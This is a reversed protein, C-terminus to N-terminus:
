ILRIPANHALNGYFAGIRDGLTPLKMLAANEADLPAMVLMGLIAVIERFHGPMIQYVDLDAISFKEHL